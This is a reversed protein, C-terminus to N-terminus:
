RSADNEIESDDIAKIIDAQVRAPLRITRSLLMKNTENAIQEVSSIIGIPTKKGTKSTFEFPEFGEALWQNRKGRFRIAKRHVSSAIGVGMTAVLGILLNRYVQGSFAFAGGSGLLGVGIVRAVHFIASEARFFKKIFDKPNLGIERPAKMYPDMSNVFLRINNLRNLIDPSFLANLIEPKFQKLADDLVWPNFSQAWNTENEHRRLGVSEPDFVNRMKIFARHIWAAQMAVGAPGDRGGIWEYIADVNTVSDGHQEFLKDVLGAIDHWRKNAVADIILKAVGTAIDAKRIATETEVERLPQIEHEMGNKRMANDRVETLAKILREHRSVDKGMMGKAEERRVEAKLDSITKRVGGVTPNPRKTGRPVDGFELQTGGSPPESPFLKELEEDVMRQVDVKNAIRQYAEEATEGFKMQTANKHEKKFQREIKKRLEQRNNKLKEYAEPSMSEQEQKSRTEQELEFKVTEGDVREQTEKVASKIKGMDVAQRSAADAGEDAFRMMTQAVRTATMEPTEASTTEKEKPKARDKPTEKPKEEAKPEAETTETKVETAEDAVRAVGGTEDEALKSATTVEEVRAAELIAKALPDDTIGAIEKARMIAEGKTIPVGSFLMSTDTGTDEMIADVYSEIFKTLTSGKEISSGIVDVLESAGKSVVIETGDSIEWLGLQDKDLKLRKAEADAVRKKAHVSYYVDIAQTFDDVISYGEHRRGTKIEEELHLLKPISKRLGSELSKFKETKQEGLLKNVLQSGSATGGFLHSLVANEIRRLGSASPLGDSGLLTHADGEIADAKAVFGDIFQNNSPAKLMDLLTKTSKFTKLSDLMSSTVLTADTAARQEASLGATATRNGDDAIKEMNLDSENVFRKRMIPIEMGDIVAPDYGFEELQDQLQEKWKNWTEAHKPSENRHTYAEIIAATRHNGIVVENKVTMAPAGYMMHDQHSAGLPASLSNAIEDRRLKAADHQINPANPDEGDLRMTRKQYAPNYLEPDTRYGTEFDHSLIADKADFPEYIVQHKNEKSDYVVRYPQGHESKRQEQKTIGQQQPTAKESAQIIEIAAEKPTDAHRDAPKQIIQQMESYRTSAATTAKHHAEATRNGDTMITEYIEGIEQIYEDAKTFTPTDGSLDFVVGGKTNANNRAERIEEFSPWNLQPNAVRIEEYQEIGPIYTSTTMKSDALGPIVISVSADQRGLYFAMMGRTGQAAETGVRNKIEDAAPWELEPHKNRITEYMDPAYNKTENGVSVSVSGTDGVDFGFEGAQAQQASYTPAAASQEARQQTAQHETEVNRRAINRRANARVKNEDVTQSVASEETRAGEIISEIDADPEIDHRVLQSDAYDLDGQTFRYQKGSVPDYDEVENERRIRELPDVNESTTEPLMITESASAVQSQTGTTARQQEWAKGIEDGAPATAVTGSDPTAAGGTGSAPAGGAGGGLDDAMDDGPDRRGLIMEYLDNLNPDKTHAPQYGHQKRVDDDKFFDRIVEKAPVYDSDDVPVKNIENGIRTYVRHELEEKLGQMYAFAEDVHEFTYDIVTQSDDSLPTDMMDSIFTDMAENGAEAYRQLQERSIEGAKNDMKFRDIAAEVIDKKLSKIAPPLDKVDVGLEDAITEAIPMNDMQGAHLRFMWNGIKRTGGKHALKFGEKTMKMLVRAMVMTPDAFDVAHAAKQYGPASDDFRFGEKILEQAKEKKTKLGFKKGFNSEEALKESKKYAQYIGERPKQTAKAVAKVPKGAIDLTRSTAKSVTAGAKTKGITKSGISVLRTTLAGGTGIGMSVLGFLDGIMEGPDTALARKMNAESGYQEKYHGILMSLVPYDTQSTDINYAKHLLETPTDTSVDLIKNVAPIYPAWKRLLADSRETRHKEPIDTAFDAAEIAAILLYGINPRLSGWSKDEATRTAGFLGWAIAGGEKVISPLIRLPTHMPHAMQAFVRAWSVNEWDEDSQPDGTFRGTFAMDIVSRGSDDIDEAEDDIFGQEEVFGTDKQIEEVFGM